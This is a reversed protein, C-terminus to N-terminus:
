LLLQFLSCIYINLYVNENSSIVKKKKQQKKFIFSLLLLLNSLKQNINM